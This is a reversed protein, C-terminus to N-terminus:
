GPNLYLVELNLTLARSWEALPPSLIRLKNYIGLHALAQTQTYVQLNAAELISAGLNEINEAGIMQVIEQDSTYGMAKFVVVIPVDETLANHSLFYQGKKFIVNTKSKKEHTSSNVTAV